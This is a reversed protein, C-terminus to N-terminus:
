NKAASGSVVIDQDSGSFAVRVLQIGESGNTTRFETRSAKDARKELTGATRAVVKGNKMIVLENAKEDFSMDYTGGKVLTGNIRVNEPFTISDRKNKGLALSGAMASIVLALVIRNVFVKM